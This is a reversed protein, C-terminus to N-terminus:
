FPLRLNKDVRLLQRRFLEKVYGLNEETDAEFRLTLCPSTNSSRVLGWADAYDARLGDITNIRAGRFDAQRIFAQMFVVKQEDPMPIKLEPTNISNPLSRFIESSTKQTHSLIELLRAGAYLGDDFGYWREKFFIHGSLEGGLLANTERMKHKIFSHGTKWMIPKGGAREVEDVLAQSCKVDIIIPSGPKKAIVERAFLIMMQDAWIVDGKEDIAGIRDTRM